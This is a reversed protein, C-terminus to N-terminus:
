AHGFAKDVSIEIAVRNPNPGPTRYRENYRRVAEAVAEPEDRVVAVGELAAWRPGDVQCVAVRMGSPGAAQINRVKRSSRNTIIRALRTEPDYTVGVPVLHPSGDPRRTSLTCLHYQRWFELYDDGPASLDIAM